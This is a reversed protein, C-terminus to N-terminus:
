GAAPVPQGTQQQRYVAELERVWINRYKVPNGHYQITIPGKEPIPQDPYKAVIMHGTPGEIRQHNMIVVGNQITTIYAPEKLKGDEYRPRTFIIDYCQWQGPPRCVNVMPPYQGYIAGCQGDPYTKNEFNDCVQTEFLGMIYVGSNGRSQGEGQPPTPENFEVHLQIDGFKKKSELYKNNTPDKLNTSLMVGDQLTFTPDGGGAAQWQDLNNGDFLVVADDPPKGPTEETSATGPKVIPPQPRSMDHVKFKSWPQQPGNGEAAILVGVASLAIVAAALFTTRKM